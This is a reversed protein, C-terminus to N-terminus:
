PPDKVNWNRVKHGHISIAPTRRQLAKFKGKQLLVHLTLWLKFLADSTLKEVLKWKSNSLSSKDNLKQNLAVIQVRGKM